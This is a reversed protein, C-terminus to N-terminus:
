AGAAQEYLAMLEPWGNEGGVSERMPRGAEGHVEFGRHELTVRTGAEGEPEFVIEVETQRAPDPDFSFDPLLQWALVIRAPPEYALVRGWECESGDDAREYWRGGERPELVATALGDSIHHSDRPWWSGHENVFLHFAEERALPVSVSHRVAAATQETM